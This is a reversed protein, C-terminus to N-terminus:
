VLKKILLLVLHMAILIGCSSSLILFLLLGSNAYYDVTLASFVIPVASVLLTLIDTIISQNDDQSHKIETRLKALLAVFMLIAGIVTFLCMISIDWGGFAASIYNDSIWHTTGDMNRELLVRVRATCLFVAGVLFTAVTLITFILSVVSLLKAARPHKGKKEGAKKDSVTSKGVALAVEKGKGRDSAVRHPVPEYRANLIQKKQENFEEETLVNADRLAALETLLEFMKKKNNYEDVDVAGLSQDASDDMAVDTAIEETEVIEDDPVVENSADAVVPITDKHKKYIKNGFVVSLVFLLINGLVLPYLCYEVLAEFQALVITLAIGVVFWGFCIITYAKRFKKFEEIQLVNKYLGKLLFKGFLGLVIIFPAFVLALVLALVLLIGGNGKNTNKNEEQKTEKNLYYVIAGYKDSPGNSKRVFLNEDVYYVIEGRRDSPGNSKRVFGEDDWYYVIQGYTDSPSNAKRVFSNSDVYYIIKGYKDSPANSKRIFKHDDVYYCIPGFRANPSNSQRVFVGM